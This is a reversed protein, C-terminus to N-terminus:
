LLMGRNRPTRLAHEEDFYEDKLTNGQICLADLGNLSLQIYAMYISNWDIDQATIRLQKQANGGRDNIVKAVALIMGGAGCSPENMQIIKNEPYEQIQATLLSVHFPTFFQGTSKNGCEAMMYIEGLADYPGQQEYIEVLMKQMDVFTMMNDKTYKRATDIYMKERQQWIRGHMIDGANSITLAFMKCFDTFIVYPTYEGSM